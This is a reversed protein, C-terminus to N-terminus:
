REWCLPDNTSYSDISGPGGYRVGRHNITMFKCGEDSDLQGDVATAVIRYGQGLDFAADDVTVNYYGDDSYHDIGLGNPMDADMDANPCYTNNALYFKEQAAAVKLVMGKGDMRHARTAYERYSPIAFSMIVGVIAVVVMLELLTVGTTYKRMNNM